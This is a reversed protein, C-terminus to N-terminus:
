KVVNCFLYQCNVISLQKSWAEQFCFINVGAVSAVELVEAAMKFMAERMEKIPSWTPLPTKHQFIGVTVNRPKRLQEKACSFGYQALQLDLSKLLEELNESIQFERFFCWLAIKKLNLININRDIHM